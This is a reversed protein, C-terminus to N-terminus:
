DLYIRLPRSESPKTCEAAIEPYKARLGKTDIRQSIQPRYVIRSGGCEVAQRDGLREKLTSAILKLTADADEAIKKAERFDGLIEALSDDSEFSEDRDEAPIFAANLAAGRCQKRWPCGSCRRDITPLPDPMPGREVAGWLAGEREILGAQLEADADVDFFLLQWSDPHLIAFSGWQYETALMAHQVQLIHSPQLGERRIRRFEWFQVTKVELVGPGRDDIPAIERDINVRMWPYRASVFSPRSSLTRGTKETYLDAAAAELVIGRKMPGTVEQPYDAEIGRKDFWLQRACGYPPESLVHHVDSGGIGKRREALWESRDGM